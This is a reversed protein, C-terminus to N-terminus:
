QPERAAVLQTQSLLLLKVSLPCYYMFDIEIQKM